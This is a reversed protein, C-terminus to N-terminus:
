ASEPWDQRAYFGSRTVRQDIRFLSSYLSPTLSRPGQDDREHQFGQAEPRQQPAAL